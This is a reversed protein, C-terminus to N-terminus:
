HLTGIPFVFLTPELSTMSCLVTPIGIRTTQGADVVSSSAEHGRTARPAEILDATVEEIPLAIRARRGFEVSPGPSGGGWTPVSLGTSSRTLSTAASSAIETRHTHRSAALPAKGLGM